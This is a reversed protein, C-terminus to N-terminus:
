KTEVNNEGKQKNNATLAEMILKNVEEETEQVMVNGGGAAVVATAQNEPMHFVSFVQHPYIYVEVPNGLKTIWTAHKLTVLNM